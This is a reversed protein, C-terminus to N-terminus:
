GDLRSISAIGALVAVVLGDMNFTHNFNSRIIFTISISITTAWVLRVMLSRRRAIIAGVPGIIPPLMLAPIIWVSVDHLGHLFARGIM